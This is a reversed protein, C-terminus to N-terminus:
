TCSEHCPLCIRKESLFERSKCVPLIIEPDPIIPDSTPPNPCVGGDCEEFIWIQNDALVMVGWIKSGGAGLKIQVKKYALSGIGLEPLSSFSLPGYSEWNDVSEISYNDVKGNELFVVGKEGSLSLLSLIRRDERDAVLV